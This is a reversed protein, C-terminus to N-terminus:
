EKDTTRFSHEFVFVCWDCGDCQTVVPIASHAPTGQAAPADCGFLFLTLFEGLRESRHTRM